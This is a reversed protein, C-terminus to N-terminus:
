KAEDAEKAPALTFDVFYHQGIKFQNLAEPNNVLMKFSGGPTWKSWTKNADDSVPSLTVEDSEHAGGGWTTRKTIETCVVKARVM